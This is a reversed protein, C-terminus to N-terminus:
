SKDKDWLDIHIARLLLGSSRSFKMAFSRSRGRAYNASSLKPSCGFLQMAEYMVAIVLEFEFWDKFVRDRRSM